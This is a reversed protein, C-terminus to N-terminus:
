QCVIEITAIQPVLDAIVYARVDIPDALYFGTAGGAFVQVLGQFPSPM